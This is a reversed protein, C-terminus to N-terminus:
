NRSNNFYAVHRPVVPNKKRKGENSLGGRGRREEKVVFLWSAREARRVRFLLICGVRSAVSWTPCPVQRLLCVQSDTTRLDHMPEEHVFSSSARNLARSASVTLRFAFYLDISIRYFILSILISENVISPVAYKTM